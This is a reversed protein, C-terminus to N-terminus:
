RPLPRLDLTLGIQDGVIRDEVGIAPRDAGEIDPRGLGAEDAHEVDKHLATQREAAKGGQDHSGRREDGHAQQQRRQGPQAGHHRPEGGILKVLFNRPEVTAVLDAGHRGADPYETIMRELDARHPGLLLPQLLDVALLNTGRDAAHGVLDFALGALRDFRHGALGVLHAVGRGPEM